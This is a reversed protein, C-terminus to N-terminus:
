CNRSSVVNHIREEKKCAGTLKTHRCQTLGFKLGSDIADEVTKIWIKPSTGEEGRYPFICSRRLFQLVDVRIIVEIRKRAAIM